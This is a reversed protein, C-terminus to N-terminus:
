LCYYDESKFIVIVNVRQSDRDTINYTLHLSEGSCWTPLYYSAVCLFTTSTDSLELRISKFQTSRGQSIIYILFFLEVLM